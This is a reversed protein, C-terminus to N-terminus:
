YCHLDINNLINKVRADWTYHQILDYLANEGLRKRLKEDVHLKYLANLWCKIDDSPCLICNYDPKLVERLVPLDSCVIAKGAAMYEFIKLPSMWRETTLTGRSLHVKEQYPALLIDMNLRLEEAKAPLMFGHVFLNNISSSEKKVRLIDNEEGGVVHFDAWTSKKALKIILEIGRGKYLQGVYGIQTRSNTSLSISKSNHPVDAGDPAVFLMNSSEPYDETYINKLAETIVVMTKFNKNKLLNKFMHKQIRSTKPLPAHYEYILPIKFFSSFFIGLFFRSFILDPNSRLAEVASLLAYIYDGFSVYKINPKKIKKIDFRECIGYFNFVAENSIKSTERFKPAILKVQHGNRVFAACMKM